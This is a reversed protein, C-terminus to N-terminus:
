LLIKWYTPNRDSQGQQPLSALSFDFPQRRNTFQVQTPAHRPPGAYRNWGGKTLESGARLRDQFRDRQTMLNGHQFAASSAPGTNGGSPDSTRSRAITTTTLNSLPAALHPALAQSCTLTWFRNPKNKLETPLRRIATKKPFALKQSRGRIDPDRIVALKIGDWV